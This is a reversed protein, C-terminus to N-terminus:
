RVVTCDIDLLLLEIRPRSRDAGRSGDASEAEPPMELFCMCTTFSAVTIFALSGAYITWKHPNDEGLLTSLLPPLALGHLTGPIAFVERWALVSTREDYDKTYEAALANYPIWYMAMSVFYCTNFFTLWLVLWYGNVADPPCFLAMLSAANILSGAIMWPYRRGISTHTHNDSLWGILPGSLPDVLRALAFGVAFLGPQLGKSDLYYMPLYMSVPISGAACAYYPLGYIMKHSLSVPKGVAHRPDGKSPGLLLQGESTSENNFRSEADLAM